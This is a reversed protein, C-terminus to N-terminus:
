SGYTQEHTRRLEARNPLGGLAGAARTSLAGCICARFLCEEMGAGEILGDIFGADFADGSGTSDIAFVNPPSVAIRAGNSEGTAGRAGLKLVASRLGLARTFGFYDEPTASGSLLAGEKENPFLYDVAQLTPHNGPDTLWDPQYGVDLSTTCGAEALAPLLAAALPRALPMAFHIHRARSLSLPADAALLAATLQRNVGAHTFFSRDERTSVSLTVGTPGPLKRMGECAVGFDNLRRQVWDGDDEGILGVLAVSRGLRSLACATIACGGGIERTYHDTFVEEGPGPWREFGSLVHDVYIEGVVIVDWARM